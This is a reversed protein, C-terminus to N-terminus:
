SAERQPTYAVWIIKGERICMLSVIDIDPTCAFPTAALLVCVCVRVMGEDVIGTYSHERSKKRGFTLSLRKKVASMRATCSIITHTM